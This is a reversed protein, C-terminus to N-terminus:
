GYDCNGGVSPTDAVGDSERARRAQELFLVSLRLHNEPRLQHHQQWELM